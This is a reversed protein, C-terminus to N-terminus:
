VSIPEMSRDLGIWVGIICTGEQDSMATVKAWASWKMNGQVMEEEVGAEVELNEARRKQQRNNDRLLRVGM